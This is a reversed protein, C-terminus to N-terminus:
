GGSADDRCKDLLDACVWAETAIGVAGFYWRGRERGGNVGVGGAHGDLRADAVADALVM